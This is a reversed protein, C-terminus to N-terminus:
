KPGFDFGIYKINGPVFLKEYSINEEKNELPDFLVLDVLIENKYRYGVILKIHNTAENSRLLFIPLAQNKERIKNAIWQFDLNSTDPDNLYSGLINIAKLGPDVNSAEDCYTGKYMLPREDDNEICCSKNKVKEVIECQTTAISLNKAIIECSAAWCWNAGKQQIKEYPVIYTSTCSSLLLIIFLLVSFLFNTNKVSSYNKM